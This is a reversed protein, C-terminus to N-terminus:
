PQQDDRPSASGFFLPSLFFRRSSVGEVGVAGLGAVKGGDLRAEVAGGVVEHLRVVSALVFDKRSHGSVM